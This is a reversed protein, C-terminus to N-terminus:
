RLAAGGAGSRPARVSTAQHRLGPGRGGGTLWPKGREALGPVGGEGFGDEVDEDAEPDGDGGVDPEEGEPAEGRGDGLPDLDAQEEGPYGEDPAIDEAAQEVPQMYLCTGARRLARPSAGNDLSFIEGSVQCGAGNEVLYTKGFPPGDGLCEPM